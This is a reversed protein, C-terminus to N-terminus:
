KFSVPAEIPSVTVSSSLPSLAIKLRQSYVIVPVTMSGVSNVLGVPGIAIRALAEGSQQKKTVCSATSGSAASM